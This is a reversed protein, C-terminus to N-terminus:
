GLAVGQTRSALRKAAGARGGEGAAELMEAALSVTWTIDPEVLGTNRLAASVFAFDEDWSKWDRTHVACPLLAAQVCTQLIGWGRGALIERSERLSAEAANFDGQALAVLALNVRPFIEDASSLRTLLTLASRYLDAAHALDGRLRAIEGLGNRGRSMGYQNGLEAFRAEAQRYLRAAETLDSRQRAVDALGLLHDAVGHEDGIEQYIDRAQAFLDAARACDGRQRAVDALGWLSGAAGHPNGSVATCREYLRVAEALDGRRRAADGLLRLSESRIAAWDGDIGGMVAQGAWRFVEDLNGQHLHIRARLVWSEGRRPDRPAAGLTALAEDRQTLLAQALGYDSTERRERAGRLLPELAAEQEGALLLHRGLRESVGREGAQARPALMAACARNHAPWRGGERALRELSERLMAHVFSWGEQTRLALRNVVLGEAIKSPDPLGAAACAGEWERSDVSSGLAAAIELAERSGPPQGEVLRAVRGSWVQHLDDPIQVAAGPRLVFGEAGVELLGRQVWDGVLQVAFLPNGGTREDVKAALDGALGLLERILAARDGQPLPPVDISAAGPLALLEALAAAEAPREALAEDRATLLLLVPLGGDTDRGAARGEMLSRAFAISEPGWPVDDLLLLVPRQRGLRRLQRELLAFREGATQPRAPPADGGDAATGPAMLDALAIAEAEDMIKWRQLLREARTLVDARSLGICRLHRALMRPLGDAAGPNPGHAARLVTAGGVEHAREAIWEALRTKGTGAAGRLLVLRPEREAHVVSLAAWLVNRERRRGILPVTRLGYLGLGAGILRMSPPRASPQEWTVPLPPSVRPAPPEPGAGPPLLDPAGGTSPAVGMLAIVQTPTDDDIREAPRSVATGQATEGLHLLSWLADAARVFRRGPEKLLLRRLWGEFGAPVPFLAQFSPPEEELQRRVLEILGVDSFPPRGSALTWAVCGLGYLDTWAGYDRWEGRIQEPSMYSPTGCVFETSDPRTQLLEVAQALGFDALKLRRGDGQGFVLVNSPKLDRHVVGRAHAHALADLLAILISRLPSWGMEDAPSELLTGHDALEMALYPSGAPLLGRSADEVGPGVEGHDLVMVIGPHDLSAVAQVENRFAARYQEERSREGTMVKVAVPVGQSAHVGSWVEAMGGRGIRRTLRFPGLPIFAETM